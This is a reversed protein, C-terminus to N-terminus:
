GSSKITRWLGNRSLFRHRADASSSRLAAPIRSIFVTCMHCEWIPKWFRISSSRISSKEQRPLARAASGGRVFTGSGLWISRSRRHISAVTPQHAAREATPAPRLRHSGLLGCLSHSGYLWPLRGHHAPDRDARREACLDADAAPLLVVLEPDAAVMGALARREVPVALDLYLQHVWLEHVDVSAGLFLSHGASISRSHCILRFVDYDVLMYVVGMGLWVLM